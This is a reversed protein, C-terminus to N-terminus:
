SPTVIRALEVIGPGLYTKLIDYSGDTSGNDVVALPVNQTRVELIIEKIIDSENYVSITGLIFPRQTSPRQM